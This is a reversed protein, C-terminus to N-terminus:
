GVDRRRFGVMGAALLVAAIAALWVLPAATVDGGPVKPIHAYPSADLLWDDLQMLPGLFTLFACIGFASWATATAARPLLGFLAVTLGGLALVAPVQVAGGALVRALQEGMGSASDSSALGTFAGLMALAIAPGVVVFLLHSAMWRLRGTATGLVPEARLATEEARMRLAAQIAYAGAALALMGLSGAIYADELAGAGGLRELMGSMESNGETLQDISGSAGGIVLGGVAFGVSWGILLGRHLRWALGFPGHLAVSAETKGPRQPLMGAGVDRHALLASATGVLLATAVLILAFAWWQEDAFPRVRQAWGIPSLWPLWALDGEEGGSDGAARLLFAVGLTALAIGRAAGAGETLQAALAGVGAFFWGAAAFSGGFALAGATPLGYGALALAILGGMVVNGGFTVLLAAAVPAHRGAVTSGLLERRGADEEARTHRIVTLLSIVGVFIFLIGARWATLAGLSPGFVPGISSMLSPNSVISTYYQRLGAPDPYLEDTASAYLLPLLGILVIWFPLLVRDRRLALRVLHGTGTLASM